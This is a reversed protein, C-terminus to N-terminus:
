LSTFRDRSTWLGTSPDAVFYIKEGNVMNWGPKLEKVRYKSIVDEITAFEYGVRQIEEKSMGPGPSYFVSFRGNTSGHILHAAAALNGALDENEQVLQAIEAYPRYGYKRIMSDITKDEGFQILGPAIVIMEGGDAMAMRVHHVSKNGVWTSRYKAPDLWIIARKIEEDLYTINLKASLASARYFCELDDGIFLGKIANKGNDNKEVVTLIWIIPPLKGNSIELAKNFVKRVPTDVRGIIREMGYCAGLYHSKDIAEKGGLGVFLNKAHNSMGVVEHPVVQGISLIVDPMSDVLAKNIQVPYDYDVVEEGAERIFSSPIRGLELVEHQWDHIAFKENPINPYMKSLEANTMSLHTGLAPIIMTMSKELRNHLLNLVDGACSQIRTIDPVVSLINKKNQVLSVIKQIADVLMSNTLGSNESIFEFHM